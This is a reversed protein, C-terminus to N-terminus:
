YQGGLRARLIRELEEDRQANPGIAPPPAVNGQMPSAQTPNFFSNDPSQPVQAPQLLRSRGESRVDAGENYKRERFKREKEADQHQVYAGAGAGLANIMMMAMTLKDMGGGGFLASQGYGPVGGGVGQASFKNIRNMDGANFQTGFAPGSQYRAM